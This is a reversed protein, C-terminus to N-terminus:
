DDWHKKAYNLVKPINRDNSFCDIDSGALERAINTKVEHLYNFVSQGIRLEKPKDRLVKLLLEDEFEQYTM